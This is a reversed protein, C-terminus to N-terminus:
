ASSAGVNDDGDGDWDGVLARGGVRGALQAIVTDDGDKSVLDGDVDLTFAGTAPRHLGVEDTGDGNWDGVLPKDGLKGVRLSGVRDDADNSAGDGDVDLIFAGTSARFLGIEDGALGDWNGVM